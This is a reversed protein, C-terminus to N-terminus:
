INVIIVLHFPLINVIFTLELAPGSPIELLNKVSWWSLRDNGNAMSNLREICDPCTGSSQFSAFTVGM